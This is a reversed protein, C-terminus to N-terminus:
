SIISRVQAARLRLWGSNKPFIDSKVSSWDWPRPSYRFSQLFLVINPYNRNVLVIRFVINPYNRLQSVEDSVFINAM